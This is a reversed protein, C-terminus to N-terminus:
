KQYLCSMLLVTSHKLLIVPFGALIFNIMGPKLIGNTLSLAAHDTSLDKRFGFQEQVLINNAQLHQNLRHYMTKESVKSFVTLM